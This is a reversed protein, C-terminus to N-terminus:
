FCLHAEPLRSPDKDRDKAVAAPLSQVGIDACWEAENQIWICVSGDWSARM